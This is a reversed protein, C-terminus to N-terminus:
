PFGTEGIQVSILSNGMQTTEIMLSDPVMGSGAEQFAIRQMDLREFLPFSFANPKSNPSENQSEEIPCWQLVSMISGNLIM